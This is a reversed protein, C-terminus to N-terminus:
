KSCSLSRRAPMAKAVKPNGFGDAFGTGPAAPFQVLAVKSVIPPPTLKYFGINQTYKTFVVHYQVASAVDPSSVSMGLCSVSFGM